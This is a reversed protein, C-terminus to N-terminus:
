TRIQIRGVLILGSGPGFCQKLGLQKEGLPPTYQTCFLRSTFVTTNGNIEPKKMCISYMSLILCFVATIIDPHLVPCGSVQRDPSCHFGQYLFLATIPATCYLSYTHIKATHKTASYIKLSHHWPWAMTSHVQVLDSKLLFSDHTARPSQGKLSVSNQSRSQSCSVTHWASHTIWIHQWDSLWIWRM